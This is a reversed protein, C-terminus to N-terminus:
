LWHNSRSGCVMTRVKRLQEDIKQQQRQGAQGRHIEKGNICKRVGDRKVEYSVGLCREEKSLQQTKEIAKETLPRTNEKRHSM